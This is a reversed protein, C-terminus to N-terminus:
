IIFCRSVRWTRVSWCCPNPFFREHSLQNIMTTCSMAEAISSFILLIIDNEEIETFSEVLDTMLTEDGFKMMVSNSSVKYHVLLKRVLLNHKHTVSM